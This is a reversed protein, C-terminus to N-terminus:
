EKISRGYTEPMIIVCLIAIIFGVVIVQLGLDYSAQSYVRLGHSVVHGWRVNMLYGVLPQLIGPLGMIIVSVFGLATGVMNSKNTERVVPYGIIQAGTFFGLLFFEFLYALESQKPMYLIFLFLALSIVATLLMPKKRSRLWDSVFGFVTSGVITGIFIMMSINAAQISSFGYAQMMWQKGFLGALVMIPLNMTCIYLGTLWNYKNVIMQYLAPFWHIKEGGHDTQLQSFRKEAPADKVFIFIILLIVAGFGAVSYLAQRWGQWDILITLPTQSAAGGVMGITVVMGTVGAMKHAPFWQAALRLISLLCFASATGALFRAVVLSWADTSSAILITGAICMWMGVIILRRSSFRDLLVGAPYLLLSDSFFYFASVLGIQFASLDFSSEFSGALSNFMNMQIFEYFFFLSASLVVFWAKFRDKRNWSLTIRKGISLVARLKCFNDPVLLDKTAFQIFQAM